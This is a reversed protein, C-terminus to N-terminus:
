QLAGADYRCFRPAGIAAPAGGTLLLRFCTFPLISSMKVRGDSSKGVDADSDAAPTIESISFEPTGCTAVFYAHEPL